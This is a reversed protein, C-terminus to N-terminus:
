YLLKNLKGSENCMQCILWWAYINGTELTHPYHGGILCMWVETSKVFRLQIIHTSFKICVNAKIFYIQVAISLKHWIDAIHSSYTSHRHSILKQFYFRLKFRLVYEVIIYYLQSTTHICKPFLINSFNWKGDLIIYWLWASIDM